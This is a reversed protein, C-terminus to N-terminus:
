HVVHFLSENFTVHHSIHIKGSNPDLCKYGKHTPSYGIFICLASKPQLKHQNPGLFLPFCACEFIQLLNYDPVRDYLIEYPSKYALVAISLRNILHTAMQFASLWYSPPLGSQFLLCRGMEAIHRHKCEVVGNQTAIYPCSIHHQIGHQRTFFRFRHNIFEGGGDSQIYYIVFRLQKEILKKFSSFTELVDFKHYLPFIWMYRSYDDVVTLFYSFNSQSKVLAPGWVDLHLLQLAVTSRRASTPFPLRHAKGLPCITCSVTSNNTTPLHYKHLLIKLM